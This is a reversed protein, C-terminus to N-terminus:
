GTQALGDGDVEDHEGHEELPVHQGDDLECREVAETVDALREKVLDDVGDPHDDGRDERRAAGLLQEHLGLPERQLQLALGLLELGLLVLQAPRVDLELILRPRELCGLLEQLGLLLLELPRVCLQLLLRRLEGLLLLRDLHFVGLDLEGTSGELLPGLLQRQARAVLRLEEGVHAVLEPRRQVAEEDQGLQEAVVRAAVQRRLLHLEGLADM